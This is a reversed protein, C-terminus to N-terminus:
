STVMQKITLYADTIRLAMASGQLEPLDRYIEETVEPLTNLRRGYLGKLQKRWLASSGGTAYIAVADNLARILKFRQELQRWASQLERDISASVQAFDDAPILKKLSTSRQAYSFICKAAFVDSDFTYNVEDIVLKMGWGVLTQSMSQILEGENLFGITLDKQGFVLIVAREADSVTTVGFGEYEVQFKRISIKHAVGNYGFDFLASIISSKLTNYEKREAYPLLVTFHGIEIDRDPSVLSKLEGMAALVKPIINSSKTQSTDIEQYPQIAGRGVIYGVHDHWVAFTRTKAKSVYKRYKREDVALVSSQQGYFHLKGSKDLYIIKTLSSGPDIVVFLIKYLGSM